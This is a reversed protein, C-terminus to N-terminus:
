PGRGRTPQSKCAPPLGKLSPALLPSMRWDDTPEPMYQDLFWELRLPKVVSANANQQWSGMEYKDTPAFKPHVTVPMSLIQGIIGTIGEDRAMLTVV